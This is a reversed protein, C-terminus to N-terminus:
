MSSLKKRTHARRTDLSCMLFTAASSSNISEFRIQNFQMYAPPPNLCVHFFCESIANSKGVVWPLNLIWIIDFRLKLGDLLIHQIGPNKEVDFLIVRGYTQEMVFPMWLDVPILCHAMAHPTSALVAASPGNLVNAWDCKPTCVCRSNLLEAFPLLLALCLFQDSFKWFFVACVCRNKTQM